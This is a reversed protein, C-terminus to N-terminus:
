GKKSGLAAAPTTSYNPSKHRGTLPVGKLWLKLAEYHIAVIVKLTLLPYRFLLGLLHRDTMAERTGRFHTKLLAGDHDSLLVAVLAEAGPDTVRFGYGGQGSTFPSVYMEKPASQAFVDGQQLAGAAVVYSKREGFTNNVEYIITELAGGPAYVYFVSLPNFVYGFMRPYALLQIRRGESQRDADRLCAVAIERLPTGDGPGHDTDHVSFVNFRNHSLWRLRGAVAALADVDVLFSFVKYDLAHPVPRLRKHVVHGAYIAADTPM